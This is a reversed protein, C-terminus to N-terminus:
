NSSQPIDVLAGADTVLIGIGLFSIAVIIILVIILLNASKNSELIRESLAVASNLIGSKKEKQANESM